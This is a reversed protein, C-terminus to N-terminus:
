RATEQSRTASLRKRRVVHSALVEIAMATTPGDNTAGAPGETTEALEALLEGVTLGGAGPAPAGWRDRLKRTGQHFFERLGRLLADRSQHRLARAIRRVEGWQSAPLRAREFKPVWSKGLAWAREAREADSVRAQLWRGVDDSPMSPDPPPRQQVPASSSRVPVTTALVDPEWLVQGLGDQRWVGVGAAVRARIAPVDLPTSGARFYIVSGGILVQREVDHRMWTSNFPSYRRSGLFSRSPDFTWDPPLGFHLPSPRLTVDGTQPDRLGIDSVCWFLTGDPGPAVQKPMAPPAVTKARVRGFEASRSRGIRIETGDPLARGVVGLLDDPGDIRAYCRLGAPLAAITFLFGERARGDSGVATRMSVHHHVSELRLDGDLLGSRLPKWDVTADSLGRALNRVADSLQPRGPTDTTAPADKPRHLSLPAPLSPGASGLAPFGYGFRVEEGHFIRWRVEPPLDGYVRHAVAGLLARGPIWSLSRHGGVSASSETVAVDTLLELELHLSM